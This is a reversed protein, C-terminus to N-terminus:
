SPPVFARAVISAADALLKNNPQTKPDAPATYVTIILPPHGPPWVVAIDNAEGRFGTGTKDGVRWGAPLGARIRADGTKNGVLWGTLLDRGAPDLADGLVLARLNTGMRAPTSTDRQDGPPVDSLEPEYRDVRSLQDGISRAFETVASPGDLIKLLENTATNDSQTIAAECLASVTMGDAVHRLSTPSAAVLDSQQYRVRRDLLGPQSTRLRLIASGVLMKVTSCLPFREDARHTIVAGSGTDLGFVGLRGRFGAELADLAPGAAAVGPVSPGSSSPAVGPSCAALPLGLAPPAFAALSVLLLTRRDLVTVCGDGGHAVPAALATVREALETPRNCTEDM